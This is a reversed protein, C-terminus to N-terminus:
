SFEEKLLKAMTNTASLFGIIYSEKILWLLKDIQEWNKTEDQFENLSKLIHELLDKAHDQTMTEDFETRIKQLLELRDVHLMENIFREPFVKKDGLTMMQLGGCIKKSV